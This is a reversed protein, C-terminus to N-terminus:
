GRDLALSFGARRFTRIALTQGKLAPSRDLFGDSIRMKASDFHIAITTTMAPACEPMIWLPDITGVLGM